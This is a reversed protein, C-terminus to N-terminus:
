SNWSNIKMCIKSILFDQVIVKPRIYPYQDRIQKLVHELIKFEKETMCGIRFMVTEQESHDQFREKSEQMRIFIDKADFYFKKGNETLKVVRSSRYFLTKSVSLEGAGENMLPLPKKDREKNYFGIIFINCDM